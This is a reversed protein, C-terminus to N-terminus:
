KGAGNPGILAHISNRRVKLDVNKVAAFGAFNKTLGTAEIIYDDPGSQM